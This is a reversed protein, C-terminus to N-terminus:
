GSAPSTRSWRTPRASGRADAAGAARAGGANAAQGAGGRRDTRRGPHQEVPLVLAALRARSRQHSLAERQRRAAPEAEGRYVFEPDALIRQLAAEIGADFTGRRQPGRQYFQMLADMDAATSRAASRASRWRPSSRRACREEEDRTAGQRRSASSSRAAARPTAARGQRRLPGEITVQGVHPYFQFGPITGPSNMTRVFPRNLERARASRQDRPLDRGVTHLGAKVPIRPTAGGNGQTAREIEKDWDFLKVREGDITVELQEGTIQGLVSQSTAPSARSRSRTTATPRSSTSSRAHRRAHRVAPGRHPLEAGHGGAVDFVSQTPANVDGIALRSIKGAASLYAEMLAPSM